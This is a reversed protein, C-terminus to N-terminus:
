GFEAQNAEEDAIIVQSTYSNTLFKNTVGFAIDGTPSASVGGHPFGYALSSSLIGNWIMAYNKIPAKLPMESPMTLNGVPKDIITGGTAEAFAIVFDLAKDYVPWNEENLLKTELQESAGYTEGPYLKMQSPKLVTIDINVLSGRGPVFEQPILRIQKDKDVLVPCASQMLNQNDYFVPVVLHTTCVLNKQKLHQLRAIDMSAALIVQDFRRIIVESNNIAKVYQKTAAIAPTNYLIEARRFVDAFIVDVTLLERSHGDAVMAWSESYCLKENDKYILDFKRSTYGEKAAFAVFKEDLVRGEGSAILAKYKLPNAEIAAVVEDIPKRYYKAIMEVESMPTSNEIGCINFIGGPHRPLTQVPFSGTTEDRRSFIRYSHEGLHANNITLKQQRPGMACFITVEYGQNLLKRAVALGTLGAGVIAVRKRRRKEEKKHHALFHRRLM